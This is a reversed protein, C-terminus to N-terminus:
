AEYQPQRRRRLWIIGVVLAAGGVDALCDGLDSFRGQIHSQWWEDLLGWGACVSLTIWLQESLRPWARWHVSSRYVLIALGAYEVLHAVKDVPWTGTEPTRLNPISSVALIAAGYLLLPIHYKIMNNMELARVLANTALDSDGTLWYEVAQWQLYPAAPTFKIHSRSSGPTILVRSHNARM